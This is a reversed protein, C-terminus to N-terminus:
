KKEFLKGVSKMMESGRSKDSPEKVIFFV